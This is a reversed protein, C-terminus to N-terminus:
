IIDFNTLFVVAAATQSLVAVVQALGQTLRKEKAITDKM